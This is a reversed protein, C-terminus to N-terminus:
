SGPLVALVTFQDKKFHMDTGSVVVHGQVQWIGKVDLDGAVTTTFSAVGNPADDVTLTWTDGAGGRKEIKAEVTTAGTLNVPTTGDKEYFTFEFKVGIDGVHAFEDAM